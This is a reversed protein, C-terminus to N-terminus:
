RRAPTTGTGHTTPLTAPPTTAPAPRAAFAPSTQELGDALHRVTTTAAKLKDFVPAPLQRWHANYQAWKIIEAANRLQEALQVLVAAQQENDQATRTAQLLEDLATPLPDPDTPLGYLRAHLSQALAQVPGGCSKYGFQPGAQPRLRFSAIVDRTPVDPDIEAALARALDHPTLADTTTAVEM